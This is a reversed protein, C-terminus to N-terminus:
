VPFCLGQPTTYRTVKLVYVPVPYLEFGSATYIKNFGDSKTSARLEAAHRTKTSYYEQSLPTKNAALVQVHRFNYRNRATEISPSDREEQAGDFVM